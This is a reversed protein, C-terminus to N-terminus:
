CRFVWRISLLLKLKQDCKPVMKTDKGVTYEKFINCVNDINIQILDRITLLGQQSFAITITSISKNNNGIEALKTVNLLAILHKDLNSLDASTSNSWMNVSMNTRDGERQEKNEKKQDNRLTKKIEKKEDNTM